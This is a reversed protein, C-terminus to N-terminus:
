NSLATEGFPQREALRQAPQDLLLKRREGALRLRHFLELAFEVRKKVTALASIGRQRAWDDFFERAQAACDSRANRPM